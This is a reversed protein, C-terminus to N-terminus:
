AASNEQNQQRSQSRPRRPPNRRHTRTSLIFRDYEDPQLWITGRYELWAAGKARDRAVTRANAGRDRAIKAQTHYTKGALILVDDSM